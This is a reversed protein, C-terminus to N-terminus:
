VVSKRDLVAEGVELVEEAWHPPERRQNQGDLQDRVDDSGDREADAECRIHEGVVGHECDEQREETAGRHNQSGDDRERDVDEATQNHGNLGKDEAKERRDVDRHGDFVIVLTWWKLGLGM